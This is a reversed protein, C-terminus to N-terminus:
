RANIYEKFLQSVEYWYDGGEDTSSFIFSVAIYDHLNVLEMTNIWNQELGYFTRVVDVNCNDLYQQLMDQETLFEVLEIPLTEITIM